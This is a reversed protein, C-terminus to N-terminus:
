AQLGRKRRVFALVATVVIVNIATATLALAAIEPFSGNQWLDLLVQGIAPNSTKALLASATLEGAMQVFLIVWGAALGPLMLPLMVSRFARAPAAKFIAAAETLERGVQGVAVSASRMAQPMFIVLYALLLILWTGSINLWGSSFSLIFGVAVVVHPVGAPAATVAQIIRNLGSGSVQGSRALLAAILMGITGGLAGLAVSNVLAKGALSSNFFITRYNDFGLTAFNINATWFPQLSVFALGLLPLVGATVIFSLLLIRAPWRWLGLRVRAARQGKGGIQASRSTPALLTQLLLLVQVLVTLFLGLLIALDVRAPYAYVLRYILVPLMEIKAGTGIIVPVSFIAFGMMMVLLLGALLAPRIAPLTVRRFTTFANAKAMRSAEELSPDLSKLASSVPLYVYPTLYLAMVGILGYITYIDFPGTAVEIGFTNSLNRLGVNLLGARPALLMVWGIVGAIQPMLLPMLPLIEGMRGAGADTRENLWALLTGFMMALAGSAAVVIVTNQLVMWVNAKTLAEILGDKHVASAPGFVAWVMLGIPYVILLAIVVALLISMGRLSFIGGSIDRGSIASHAVDSM